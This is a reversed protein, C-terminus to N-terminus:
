KGGSSIINLYQTARVNGPDLGLIMDFYPKANTLDGLRMLDAGLYDYADILGRKTSANTSAKDKEPGLVELYKVYHGKAAGVPNNPDETKETARALSLWGPAWTSNLTTYKAYNEAAEKYMKLNNYCNAVNYIDTAILPKAENKKNYFTIANAWKKNDYFKKAFEGWVKESQTNDFELVKEYAKTAEQLKLSDKDMLNLSAKALYEWDSQYSKREKNKDIEKFLMKSNKYSEEWNGKEGYSWALWRYVTYEEPNSKILKEGEEISKDYDKADYALFKVLREKAKVDSGALKTYTELYPLMKKRENKSLLLTYMLKYAPAFDDKLKIASELKDIALDSERSNSWIEAMKMYAEINKSDKEVATEYASM